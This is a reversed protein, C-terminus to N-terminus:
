FGVQRKCWEDFTTEKAAMKRYFVDGYTFVVICHSKLINEGLVRKLLEITTKEEETMRTPFRILLLLAHFGEPCYAIATSIYEIALDVSAADNRTDCVGPTDVVKITRGDIEAWGVGNKSTESEGSESCNFLDQGLISNGTSSKGHGTKGIMLLDIDGGPPLKM